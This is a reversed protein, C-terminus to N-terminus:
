PQTLCCRDTGSPFTEVKPTIHRIRRILEGTGEGRLAPPLSHRDKTHGCQRKGRRSHQLHGIRLSLGHLCGVDLLHGRQIHHRIVVQVRLPAPLHRLGDAFVQQFGHAHVEIVDVFVRKVDEVPGSRVAVPEHLLVVRVVVRAHRLVDGRAAPVRGTGRHLLTVDVQGAGLADEALDQVAVRVKAMLEALGAILVHQRIAEAKGCRQRRDQRVGAYLPEGRLLQVGIPLGRWLDAAGIRGLTRRFANGEVYADPDARVAAPCQGRQIRATVAAVGVRVDALGGLRYRRRLQGLRLDIRECRLLLTDQPAVPRGLFRIPDAADVAIAFHGTDKRVVM